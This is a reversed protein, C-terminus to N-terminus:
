NANKINEKNNKVDNATNNGKKAKDQSKNASNETDKDNDTLAKKVQESNALDTNNTEKNYYTLYIILLAFILLFFQTIRLKKKREIM